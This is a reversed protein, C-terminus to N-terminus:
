PGVIRLLAACRKGTQRLKTKRVPHPPHDLPVTNWRLPHRFILLMWQNIYGELQLRQLDSFFCTETEHEDRVSVIIVELMWANAGINEGM